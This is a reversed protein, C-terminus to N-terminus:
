FGKLNDKLWFPPTTEQKHIPWCCRNTKEWIAPRKKVIKFNAIVCGFFNSKPMSDCERGIGM